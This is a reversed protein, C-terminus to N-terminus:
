IHKGHLIKELIIYFALYSILTAFAAGFLGWHQICFYNLVVNIIACIFSLGAITMTKEQYFLLNVKFRYLGNFFYAGILTLYIISDVRYERGIFVNYLIPMLAYLVVGFLILAITYYKFTKRYVPLFMKQNNVMNKMFYPAWAMNFSNILLSMVMCLQYAVAYEGLKGLDLFSTIFYRDAYNIVNLFLTHLILPSSYFFIRTLMKGELRFRINSNRIVLITIIASSFFTSVLIAYIRIRYDKIFYLLGITLIIDLFSKSLRIYAFQKLNEENRKLLLFGETLLNLFVYLFILFVLLRIESNLDILSTGYLLVGVLFLYGLGLVLISSALVSLYKSKNEVSFYLKSISQIFCLGIIPTLFISSTTFLDIIGIDSASLNNTLIPLVIFPTISNLVNIITYGSFNLLLAKNKIRM